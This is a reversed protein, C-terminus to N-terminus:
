RSPKQWLAEGEVVERAGCEDYSRVPRAVVGGDETQFRFERPPAEFGLCLQSGADPACETQCKFFTGRGASSWKVGGHPQVAFVLGKKDHFAGTLQRAALAIGYADRRDAPTPKKRSAVREKGGWLDTAARDADLWRWSRVQTKGDASEMTLVFGSTDPKATFTFRAAEGDHSVVVGRAPFELAPWGRQALADDPLLQVFAEDYFSAGTLAAPSLLLASARMAEFIREAQLRCSPLEAPPFAFAMTVQRRRLNFRKRLCYQHKAGCRPDPASVKPAEVKAAKPAFAKPAAKKLAGWTAPDAIGTEKLPPHQAKQFQRVAAETKGGFDGDHAVRGGAERLAGQLLMVDDSKMGKKLEPMSPEKTSPPPTTTPKGTPLKAATPAVLDWASKAGYLLAAAAITPGNFVVVAVKELTSAPATKEDFSDRQNVSTQKPTPAASPAVGADAAVAPAADPTATTVFSTLKSSINM